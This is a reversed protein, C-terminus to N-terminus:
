ECNTRVATPQRYASKHLTHFSKSRSKSLMPIHQLQLFLSFRICSCLQYSFSDPFRIRRVWRLTFLSGVVYFCLFPLFVWVVYFGKATMMAFPKKNIDHLNKMEKPVPKENTRFCKKCHELIITAFTSYHYYLFYQLLVISLVASIILLRCECIMYTASTKYVLPVQMYLSHWKCVIM